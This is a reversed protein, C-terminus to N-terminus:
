DDRRRARDSTSWLLPCHVTTRTATAKWSGTNLGEPMSWGSLFVRNTQAQAQAAPTPLLGSGGLTLWLLCVAIVTLVAKSYLDVRM